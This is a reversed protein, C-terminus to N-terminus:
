VVERKVKFRQAGAPREELTKRAGGLAGVDFAEFYENALQERHFHGTFLVTGDPRKVSVRWAPETITARRSM